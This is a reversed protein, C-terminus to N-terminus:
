DHIVAMVAKDKMLWYDAGDRGKISTATYRSFMVRAGVPVDEIGDFAKAAKAVIIGETRAFGEKEVTQEPIFLGGRTKTEVEKPQVLIHFEVPQIGSPNDKM